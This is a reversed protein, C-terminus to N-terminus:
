LNKEEGVAYALPPEVRGAMPVFPVSKTEYATVLVHDLLKIGLRALTDHLNRTLIIDETSPEGSGSPHNHAIIVGCAHCLLARETIERAYVSTHDVTGHTVEYDILHSRSDLYMVLLSEKHGSGIKMRLFDSVEKTSRIIAKRRIKQELNKCQLEHIFHIFGAVSTGVGAVSRLEPQSAALVERVSGFRELLAKALPKVDKRLIVYTLLLELVEYEPMGDIGGRIFRNRLRQRHGDIDSTEGM